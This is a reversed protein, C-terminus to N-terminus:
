RRVEHYNCTRSKIFAEIDDLSYRVLRGVKIYPLDYRKTCRWVALTDPSIGLILSAENPSLLTQISNGSSSREINIDKM